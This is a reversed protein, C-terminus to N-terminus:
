ASKLYKIRITAGMAFAFKWALAQSQAVAATVGSGKVQQLPRPVSGTGAETAVWAAATPNKVWHVVAPVRSNKNILKKQM